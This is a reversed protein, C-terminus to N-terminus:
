PALTFHRGTEADLQAAHTTIPMLRDPPLLRARHSAGYVILTDLTRGFQGSRAQRGLNPARRWVIENLFRERGFIEDCLARVLYGARWDVQLWVSGTDRLLPRLAALRPLLMDLHSAPGEEWRDVYAAACGDNSARAGLLREEMRYDVGSGYPPDLY